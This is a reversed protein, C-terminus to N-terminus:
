VSKRRLSSTTSKGGGAGPGPLHRLVQLVARQREMALRGGDVMPTWTNRKGLTPSDVYQPSVPSAVKPAIPGPESAWDVEARQGAGEHEAKSPTVVTPTRAPGDNNIHSNSRGLLKLKGMSPGIEETILSQPVAVKELDEEAAVIRVSLRVRDKLRMKTSGTRRFAKRRFLASDRNSPQRVQAHVQRYEKLEGDTDKNPPATPEPTHMREEAASSGEQIMVSSPTRSKPEPHLEPVRLGEGELLGMATLRSGIELCFDDDAKKRSGGVEVRSKLVSQKYTRVGTLIGAYRALMIKTLAINAPSDHAQSGPFPLKTELERIKQRLYEERNDMERIMSDEHGKRRKLEDDQGIYSSIVEQFEEPCASTNQGLSRYLAAVQDLLGGRRQEHAEEEKKAVGLAAQFNELDDGCREIRSLLDDITHANSVPDQDQLAQLRDNNKQLTKQSLRCNASLTSVQIRSEYLSRHRLALAILLDRAVTDTTDGQEDDEDADVEKVEPLESNQDQRKRAFAERQRQLHESLHFIVATSKRRVSGFTSRRRMMMRPAISLRKSPDPGRGPSSEM